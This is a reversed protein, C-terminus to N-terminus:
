GGELRDFWIQHVGYELSGPFKRPLDQCGDVLGAVPLAANELVAHHAHRCAKLLSVVLQDRAAPDGQGEIRGIAALAQGPVMAM